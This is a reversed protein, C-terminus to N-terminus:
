EKRYIEILLSIIGVIIFIVGVIDQGEGFNLKTGKEHDIIHFLMELGGIFM